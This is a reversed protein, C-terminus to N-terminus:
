LMNQLTKLNEEWNLHNIIAGRGRQGMERRLESNKVLYLIKSAIEEPDRNHYITGCNYEEIIRVVPRRASSLVPLGVAMYEFLKGPLTHHTQQNLFYSCVGIDYNALAEAVKSPPLLPIFKVSHSLNLERVLTKLTDIYPGEGIIHFSVKCDEKKKEILKLANIIDQVGRNESVGGAFVLRVRNSCCAFNKKSLAQQAQSIFVRSPYNELVSQQTPKIGYQKQINEGLEKTSTFIHKFYPLMSKEYLKSLFDLRFMRWVYKHDPPQAYTAPLNERMDLYVPVQLVKAATLAPLSLPTERLFIADWRMKRALRVIWITWILNVPFHFNLLGSLRGPNKPLQIVPVGNLRDVQEANAKNRSVIFPEHGLELLAQALQDLGRNKAQTGYYIIGIRL